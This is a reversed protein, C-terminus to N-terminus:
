ESLQQKIQAIENKRKKLFEVYEIQRLVDANDILFLAITGTYIDLAQQGYRLANDIDGLIEYAIGINNYIQYQNRPQKYESAAKKWLTIAGGWSRHAVSDMAQQMLKKSSTYFYRDQKEWRPIMRDAVNSGTLICADVLANYRSPLEGVSKSEWSFEDTFQKMQPSTKNPYHVSWSTIVKVDLANQAEGYDTYFVNVDDEVLIHDLSIVADAGYMRSLHRIDDQHLPSIKYFDGSQNQGAQAVTVESFFEKEDLSERLSANCFLAASDFPVITSVSSGGTTHGINNPQVPANNVILVYKVEPAFTVEAPRLIDLTTFMKQTVCSTFLLLSVFAGYFFM